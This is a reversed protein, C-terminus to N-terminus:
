PQLWKWVRLAETVAWAQADCGRHTHPADGDLVEPLQGVCGSDLLSTISTLYARAAERATASGPYAAVLAECFTPFPWTWATGNHYAPKRRTDEDGEYRPWYPNEPDNLLHGHASRVPLPPSVPLPALSRIAGPVILHRRAAEVTRQAQTGHVLGLAIPLLANSRLATSPQAHTAPTGPGAILCDSLWGHAEIWFLAQFSDLAQHALADWHPAEPLIPAQLRALQRLLRIWLAQIEVPYGERPTGAPHNTDMWTFHSPSWVLGSHPDVRIHNRTGARYGLAISRLVDLLTRGQDDVRTQYLAAPDASVAAFEECVIGFWLPADSTDRNSADEGHISNPLTGGSEFRAFTLLLERVEDLLGAAILGRAAILSDRGWDLFWPYGAIVTRTTDRRVIYAQAALVLHRGVQDSEPFGARGLAHANRQLRTAAFALIEQPAPTLPDASAALAVGQGPQLLVEFWGPSWADGSGAMGRTAEVTHPLNESWEPQPHFSGADTWVRLTRDPAPSFQFGVADPLPHTNSQFHHDAGGNRRTEWHFSRDELDVRLILRVRASPPLPRGISPHNFSRTFQLVVTNRDHLMDAVLRIEVSQGDGANALFRWHAPPGEQFDLLNDANLPSLFGDADIWARVRKAFVHRDVPVRPHLNAGLLCDYKSTIRGLDVGLRAMGGRGNTLLVLPGHFSPRESRPPLAPTANLFLLQGQLAEAGPAHPEVHLTASGSFCAPPFAAVHRNAAPISDAIRGGEEDAPQLRARFPHPAEILLWHDPPIPQIRRADPATWRIVAPYGNSAPFTSALFAAPDADVSAALSTWHHPPLVPTPSVANLAAIAWDARARAQRYREGHLAPLAPDNALCHVAGPELTAEIHTPNPRWRQFSPHGPTALDCTPPTPGSWSDAPLVLTQPNKFDANILVLCSVTADASTRLLAVVPSGPPDMRRVRAGDFFCPHDSLLRNLHALEAIIHDPNNWHLGRSSHVNLQEAACWEVGNTFAFGGNISTLACTQNRYLSWRRGESAPPTFQAALRANDHTESYHVLTGHEHSSRLAYDLYPGLVEPGANQFLESYAWQMGGDGLLAHTTEWPGGLGELLFVTDPFEQRVRATIFQWVHVPVKYGADCRFADVGRRCWTLFVRALYDWLPVYRQDFEVLDEWVIDWAGPSHFTGDPRRVFWDPHENWERSGWGTHNIVLDLMLRGGHARVARSLEMFQEVGTTRHDFEVLAPDIGTLDQLAYPSGFRGFRAFTTPTPSVPLLHLIRCGLRDFIHPLERILGRLTGSPPIVTWGQQDLARVEPPSHLQATAPQNRSWDGFMRPFACYILNASRTWSPHVSIGVDPGEPWHQAGSSDIWFAKAKFFGVESLPLTIRAVGGRVDMPLDRWSAGALPIKEFHSRVIEERIRTARGINTRLRATAGPPIPALTLTVCDGAHHVLRSGTAPSMTLHAM